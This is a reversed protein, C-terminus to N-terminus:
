VSKASAFPEVSIGVAVTEGTNNSITITAGTASYVASLTLSASVDPLSGQLDWSIPLASPITTDGGTAIAFRGVMVRNQTALRVIIKGTYGFANFSRSFEEPEVLEFIDSGANAISYNVKRQPIFLDNHKELRGKALVVSMGENILSPKTGRDVPAILVCNTNLNAYFAYDCNDDQNSLPAIFVCDDNNVFRYNRADINGLDNGSKFSFPAVMRLGSNGDIDFGHYGSTDAHDGMMQSATASTIRFGHRGSKISHAHFSNFVHNEVRVGDTGARDTSANILIGDPVAVHFGYNSSDIAHVNQVRLELGEAFELSNLGGSILVNYINPQYGKSESTLGTIEIPQQTADNVFLGCDRIGAGNAKLRIFSQSLTPTSVLYSCNEGRGRIVVGGGTIEPLDGLLYGIVGNNRVSDLEIATRRTNAYNILATFAATQETGTTGDTTTADAFAGAMEATLTFPQPREWCPVDIGSDFYYDETGIEGARDPDFLTVGNHRASAIGVFNGGGVTDGSHYGNTSVTQDVVVAPLDAISDYTRAFFAALRDKFASWLTKQETALGATYQIFLDDDATAESESMEPINKVPRQDAM